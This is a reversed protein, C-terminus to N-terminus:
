PRNVATWATAVAAYEASAAGYLDTAASLTATRAGAYNTSSTMYVTLARYWIKEANARGIGVLTGFGTAVRTNGLSCTPSPVGATTGEALLYFFHNAVGSSYHVDLGGVTSYWCDASYRDISPKIMSRLMGSRDKYLKEGILYDPADKPNNAYYEIMTGFIDSTSENLGGSEGSYTLNATRSTVGHTMEHGAVDLSDFPYYTTGDGDGYTMCFCNDSWYANNYRFGYHVRSYAGRGDKAIGKRGHVNLFYDWTMASGYQADVAVSQTNALTFDGWINDVDTFLTGSGGQQNKMNVTYQNGRSADRLSYSGSTKTTELAVSGDFFGRGTGADTQIGDWSDLVNGSSADVIVHLESPTGDALEGTVLVDYALVPARDRAYVVSQARSSAPFGAFRGAARRSAGSASLSARTSVNVDDRLTESVDIIQDYGSGHVVLDGGIVPLGKYSRDFRVHETRDADIVVDRPSLSQDAGFRALGRNKAVHGRARAIAGTPDAAAGQASVHGAWLLLTTVLAAGLGRTGRRWGAFEPKCFTTSQM